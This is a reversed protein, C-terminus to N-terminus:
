FSVTAQWFNSHLDWPRRAITVSSVRVPSRQTLAHGVEPIWRIDRIVLGQPEAEMEGRVRAANTWRFRCHTSTRVSLRFKSRMKRPGVCMAKRIRLFAARGLAAKGVHLSLLGQVVFVSASFEFVNLKFIPGPRRVGFLKQSMPRALRALRTSIVM